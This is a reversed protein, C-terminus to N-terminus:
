RSPIFQVHLIHSTNLIDVICINGETERKISMALSLANATRENRFGM